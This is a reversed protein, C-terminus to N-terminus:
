RTELDRTRKKVLVLGTLLPDTVTLRFAKREAATESKYETAAYPQARKWTGGAANYYWHILAPGERRVIIWRVAKPKSSPTM